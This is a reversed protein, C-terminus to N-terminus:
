VKKKIVYRALLLVSLLGGAAIPIEPGTDASGTSGTTGTTGTSTTDTTTIDTPTEDPIPTVTPTEDPTPTVTPTETPTDTPTPTIIYARYIFVALVARIINEEPCFYYLKDPPPNPNAEERCGNILGAAYLAEIENYAAHTTPVDAFTVTEPATFGDLLGKARAIVVAVSYRKAYEGSDIDPRFTGDDYGTMIEESNVYEIHKYAWFDTSVDSFTPSQPGAPVAADSGTDARAIAAALTARDAFDDPKFVPQYGEIYGNANDYEIYKYAWYSALVDIFSITTAAPM